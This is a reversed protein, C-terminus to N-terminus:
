LDSYYVPTSPQPADVWDSKVAELAEPLTAFLRVGMQEPLHYFINDRLQPGVVYVVRGLALAMGFEVMAGFCKENNLLVVFDCAMVGNFDDTASYQLFTNLAEGTKGTADEGTWDHSIKFGLDKLATQAERVAAKEYFSGAVYVQRIM